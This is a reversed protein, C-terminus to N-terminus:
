FLNLKDNIFVACSTKKLSTICESDQLVKLNESMKYKMNRFYKGKHIQEASFFKTSM